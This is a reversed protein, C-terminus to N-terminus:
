DLECLIWHQAATFVLFRWNKYFRSIEENASCGDPEWPSQDMSHLFFLSLFVPVEATSPSCIFL